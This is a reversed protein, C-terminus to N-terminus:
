NTFTIGFGKQWGFHAFQNPVALLQMELFKDLGEFIAVFVWSVGM